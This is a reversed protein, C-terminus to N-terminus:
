AFTLEVSLPYRIVSLPYRIVSLPYRCCLFKPVPLARVKNHQDLRAFFGLVSRSYPIFSVCWSVWWGPHALLAAAAEAVITFFRFLLLWATVIISLHLKPKPLGLKAAFPRGM